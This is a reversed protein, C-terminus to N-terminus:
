ALSHLEMTTLDAMIKKKQEKTLTKDKKIKRRLYLTLIVIYSTLYRKFFFSLAAVEPAPMHEIDNITDAIDYGDNYKHGEPILFVAVCGKFNKQKIFNTYDIYQATSMNHIDQMMTYKTDNVKYSKRVLPQPMPDNLFSLQNAKAKFEIVPLDFVDEGYIIRMIEYTKEEPLLSEDLESMQEFQKFTIDNWNM